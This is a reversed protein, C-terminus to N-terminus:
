DLPRGKCINRDHNCGKCPDKGESVTAMVLGGDAICTAPIYGQGIAMKLMTDEM